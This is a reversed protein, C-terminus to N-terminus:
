QFPGETRAIQTSITDVYDKMTSLLTRATIVGIVKGDRLVLVRRTGKETMFRAVQGIGWSADVGILNPSMIERLTLNAPYRGEAIVKTVYDWETVIGIPKDDATAIIVFGHRRAKMLKAAELANVGGDLSIFDTEVIDKAFLVRPNTQRGKSGGAVQM